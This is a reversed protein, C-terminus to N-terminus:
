TGSRDNIRRNEDTFLGLWYDAIMSQKRPEMNEDSIAAYYQALYYEALHDQAQRTRAMQEMRKRMEENMFDKM